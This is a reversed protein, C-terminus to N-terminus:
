LLRVPLIQHVSWGSLISSVFQFLAQASEKADTDAEGRDNDEETTENIEASMTVILRRVIGKATFRGIQASEGADYRADPLPAPSLDNL